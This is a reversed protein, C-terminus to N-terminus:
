SQGGEQSKASVCAKFREDLRLIGCYTRALSVHMVFTSRDIFKATNDLLGAKFPRYTASFTANTLNKISTESNYNNALLLM